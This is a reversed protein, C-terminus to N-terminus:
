TSEGTLPATGFGSVYPIKLISGIIKLMKQPVDSREPYMRWFLTSLVHPLPQRVLEEAQTRSWVSSFCTEDSDNKKVAPQSLLVSLPAPAHVPTGDRQHEDFPLCRLPTWGRAEV